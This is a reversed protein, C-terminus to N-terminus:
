FSRKKSNKKKAANYLFRRRNLLWKWAKLKMYRRHWFGRRIVINGRKDVFKYLRSNKYPLSISLTKFNISYRPKYFNAGM